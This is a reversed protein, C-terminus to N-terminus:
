AQRKAREGFSLLGGGCQTLPVPIFGLTGLSLRHLTEDGMLRRKYGAGKIIQQYKQTRRLSYKKKGFLCIYLLFKFGDVYNEKITLHRYLLPIACLKMSGFYLGDM